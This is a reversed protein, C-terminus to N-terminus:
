ETTGGLNAGDAIYFGRYYLVAYNETGSTGAMNVSDSLEIEVQPTSQGSFQIHPTMEYFGTRPNFADASYLGTAATSVALGQQATDVSLFREVDLQQFYVTNAITIKYKGNYLTRLAEQEAAATFVYPNAFTNLQLSRTSQGSATKGIFFGHQTAWFADSRELKVEGPLLPSNDRIINFKVLSTNGLLAFVRLFGQTVQKKTKKKVYDLMARDPTMPQLEM